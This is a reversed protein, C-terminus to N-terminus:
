LKLDLQAPSLHDSATATSKVACIARFFGTEHGPVPDASRGGLRNCCPRESMEASYITIKIEAELTAM